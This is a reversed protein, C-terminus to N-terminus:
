PHRYQVEAQLHHEPAGPIDNGDFASDDVFRYQTFTSALRLRAGDSEDGRRFIGGQLDYELGTELGTHRTRAAVM